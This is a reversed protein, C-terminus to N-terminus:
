PHYIISDIDIDPDNLVDQRVMQDVAGKLDTATLSVDSPFADIKQFFDYSEEVYKRDYKSSEQLIDVASDRNAPDRLWEMTASIARILREGRDDQNLWDQEGGFVMMPYQEEAPLDAASALITYGAAQLKYDGPSYLMAASIEGAELAAISQPTPGSVIMHYDSDKNLGHQALLLEMLGAGGGTLQALGMTGGKLDDWSKVDKAVVMSLPTGHVAQALLKLDAGQQIAGIYNDPAGAMLQLSGGALQQLGASSSSIAVVSANFGEKEFFGQAVGALTSWYVANTPFAGITLEEMDRHKSSDSAGVSESEDSKQGSADPPSVGASEQAVNDSRSETDGQSGSSSCATFFLLTCLMGTLSAILKRPKM